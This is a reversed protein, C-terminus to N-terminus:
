LTGSFRLGLGRYLAALLWLPGILLFQLDKFFSPRRGEIAHGVFQGIWAIVFIALSSAWLPLPLAELAGSLAFLALLAVVAGLALAPSLVLYYIAAAVAVLAAWDLWPSVSELVAPAPVSRLFGIVSLVIPPVCIWHLLKNVPHRHSEGYEDLWQDISRM